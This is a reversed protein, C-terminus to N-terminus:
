EMKSMEYKTTMVEEDSDMIAPLAADAVTQPINEEIWKLDDEAKTNPNHAPDAANKLGRMKVTETAGGGLMPEGAEGEDDDEGDILPSFAYRQNNINPRWLVMIVLLIVSFLIHWFADYIWVDQWGTVCEDRYRASYFIMILSAIVCFIITNSFHRYLSLKVVNRRLRLTKMTQMLSMFIWWCIVSDIVALPIQAFLLNGSTPDHSLSDTRVLAEIVALIFFLVGVGIVRHLMPGLRPKVIGFGLSVIIVLMRALARKMASVVEAFKAAGIVSEGTTNVSHYESYFVAKEIMGLLIVGGIWFQVRLLDRFNCASMVLWAAAYFSYIICMIMYFTLLPYEHASLYGKPSKMEVTIEITGRSTNGPKSPAIEVVLLYPAVIQVTTVVHKEPSKTSTSPKTTTTETAEPKPNPNKPTELNPPKQSEEIKPDKPQSDEKGKAEGTKTDDQSTSDQDAVERKTKKAPATTASINTHKIPFKKWDRKSSDSLIMTADCKFTEGINSQYEGSAGEVQNKEPHELYNQLRESPMDYSYEEFCSTSRATWAIKLEADSPNCKKSNITIKITSDKYLTKMFPQIEVIGLTLTKVFKGQQPAASSTTCFLTVISMILFIKM